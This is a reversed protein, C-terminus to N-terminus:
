PLLARSRGRESDFDLFQSSGSSAFSSLLFLQFESSDLAGHDPRQCCNEVSKGLKRYASGGCRLRLRRRASLFLSLGKVTSEFESM